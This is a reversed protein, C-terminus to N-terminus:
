RLRAAPGTTLAVSRSTRGPSGLAALPGRRVPATREGPRARGLVPTYGDKEKKLFLLFEGGARYETAFCSGGRGGRRVFDYPVTRDNFGDREGLTGAIQLAVPADSGRLVELVTFQIMTSPGGFPAPPGSPAQAYGTAQARVVLDATHVLEFPPAIRVTSCAWVPGPVALFVLGVCVLLRSLM